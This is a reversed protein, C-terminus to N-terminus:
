LLHRLSTNLLEYSERTPRYGTQFPSYLYKDYFQFEGRGVIKRGYVVLSYRRVIQFYLAKSESVLVVVLVLNLIRAHALTMKAPFSSTTTGSIMVLHTTQARWDEDYLLFLSFGSCNTLKPLNAPEIITPM